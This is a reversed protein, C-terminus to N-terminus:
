FALGLPVTDVTYMPLYVRSLYLVALNRKTLDDARLFISLIQSRPTVRSEAVDSSKYESYSV